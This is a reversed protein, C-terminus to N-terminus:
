TQSSSTNARATKAPLAHSLDVVSGWTPQYVRSDWDEGTPGEWPNPVRVATPYRLILTVKPVGRQRLVSEAGYGLDSCLQM